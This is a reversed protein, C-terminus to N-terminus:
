HNRSFPLRIGWHHLRHWTARALIFIEWERERLHSQCTLAPPASAPLFPLQEPLSPVLSLAPSPILDINHTYSLIFVIFLFTINGMCPKSTLFWSKLFQMYPPRLPQFHGDNMWSAPVHNTRPQSLPTFFTALSFLHCQAAGACKLHSIQVRWDFCCGILVQTFSVM